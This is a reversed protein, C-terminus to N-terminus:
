YLFHPRSAKVNRTVVAAVVTKHYNYLDVQTLGLKDLVGTLFQLIKNICLKVAQM